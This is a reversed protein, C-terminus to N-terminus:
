LSPGKIEMVRVEQCPKFCLRMTPKQGGMEETDVETGKEGRIRVATGLRKLVLSWNKYPSTATPPHNPSSEFAKDEFSVGQRTAQNRVSGSTPSGQERLM